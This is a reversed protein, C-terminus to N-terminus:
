QSLVIHQNKSFKQFNNSKIQVGNAFTIFSILFHFFFLSFFAAPVSGAWALMRGSSWYQVTGFSYAAAGRGESVDRGWRDAEEEEELWLGPRARSGGRGDM